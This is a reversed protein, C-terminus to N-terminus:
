LGNQIKYNHNRRQLKAKAQGETKAQKQHTMQEFMRDFNKCFGSASRLGNIGTESRWFIADTCDNTAYWNITTELDLLPMNRKRILKKFLTASYEINAMKIKSSNPHQHMQFRKLLLALRHIESTRALEKDQNTNMQGAPQRLRDADRFSEGTEKYKKYFKAEAKLINSNSASNFWTSPIPVYAKKEIEHCHNLWRGMHEITLILDTHRDDLQDEPFQRLLEICVKAGREIETPVLEMGQAKAIHKLYSQMLMVAFATLRQGNQFLRVFSGKAGNGVIQRWLEGPAASNKKKEEVDPKASGESRGQKPPNGDPTGVLDSPKDATLSNLDPENNDVDSRFVKNTISENTPNKDSKSLSLIESKDKNNLSNLTNLLTSYPLIKASPSHIPEFVVGKPLNDVNVLAPNFILRYSGYRGGGKKYPQCGYGRGDQTEFDRFYSPSEEDTASGQLIGASVLKGLHQNTGSPCAKNDRATLGNAYFTNSIVSSGRNIQTAVEQCMIKLLTNATHRESDKIRRRYSRKYITPGNPMGFRRAESATPYLKNHDDMQQNVAKFMGNYLTRWSYPNRTTM